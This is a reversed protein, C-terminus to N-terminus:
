SAFEILGRDALDRCFAALDAEIVTSPQGLEQELRAAADRITPARELAELMRGATPNLGHYVGRELNVVVTEHAFARYVVHSPLRVRRDLLDDHNAGM